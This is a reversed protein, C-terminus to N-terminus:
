LRQLVQPCRWRCLVQHVYLLFSGVNPARWNNVTEFDEYVTKYSPPRNEVWGNIGYSGYEGAPDYGEGWFRDWASLVNFQPVRQGNEDIVVLLEILTFGKSKVM